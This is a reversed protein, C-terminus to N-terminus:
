DKVCVGVQLNKIQCCTGKYAQGISAHVPDENVFLTSLPDFSNVSYATVLLLRSRRGSIVGRRTDPGRLLVVATLVSVSRPAQDQNTVASHTLPHSEARTFEEGRGSM